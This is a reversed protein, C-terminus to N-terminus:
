SYLYKSSQLLNPTIKYIEILDTSGMSLFFSRWTDFFFIYPFFIIKSFIRQQLLKKLRLFKPLSIGRSLFKLCSSTFVRIGFHYDFNSIVIVFHNLTEDCRSFLKLDAHLITPLFRFLILFHM